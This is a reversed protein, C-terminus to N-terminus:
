GAEIACAYTSTITAGIPLRRPGEFLGTAWLTGTFSAKVTNSCLFIGRLVVAEDTIVFSQVSETTIIQNSVPSNPTWQPRFSDSSDVTYGTFETWGAHSALTDAQALASFDTNDILGFGWNLTALGGQLQRLTRSLAATTVGNQVRTRWEGEPGAILVDFWGGIRICDNM